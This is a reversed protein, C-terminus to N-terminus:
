YINFNYEITVYQSVPRGDKMAPTFQIRRCAEIAKETLGYPLQNMPKINTVQGNSTLVASLRVTGIINNLRAGETYGPTPKSVIRAKQSVESSRFTAGYNM